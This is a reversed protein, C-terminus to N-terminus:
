ALPLTKAVMQKHLKPGDCYRENTKGYEFLEVAATITLEIKEMVKKRKEESLSFLNFRGFPLMFDSAM